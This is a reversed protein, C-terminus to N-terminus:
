DLLNGGFANGAKVSFGALRLTGSSQAAVLNRVAAGRAPDAYDPIFDTARIIFGAPFEVGTLYKILTDCPGCGVDATMLPASGTLVVNQAMLFNLFAQNIRATKEKEDTAAKFAPYINEYVYRDLDIKAISM